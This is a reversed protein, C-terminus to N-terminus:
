ECVYGPHVAEAETERIVSLIANMDLYSQNTPAPGICRAEDAMLVHLSMSDVDSHVAVTKIGM